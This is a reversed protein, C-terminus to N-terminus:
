GALKSVIVGPPLKLQKEYENLVPRAFDEFTLNPDLSKASAFDRALGAMFGGYDKAMQMRNYRQMLQPDEMAKLSRIDAPDQGLQATMAEMYKRQVGAQDQKAAAEARERRAALTAIGSRGLDGIFQQLSNGSGGGPSAMLNLGLVLLDEDSIGWGKKGETGAEATKDNAMAAPSMGPTKGDTGPKESFWDPPVPTIGAPEEAGAGLLREYARPAPLNSAGAAGAASMGTLAEYLSARPNAAAAAGSREAMSGKALDAEAQAAIAARKDAELKELGRQRLLAAERVKVPDPMVAEGQRNVTIQPKSGEPEYGLRPAEVKAAADEAARAAEIAKPNRGMSGYGVQYDGKFAKNVARGAGGAVKPAGLLLMNQMNEVDQVPLDIGLKSKAEKSIWEASKTLNSGIFDMAQQTPASKYYPSDTIGFMRGFPSSFDAAANGVADAAQQPSMGTARAIPYAGTAGAGVALNVGTDAINVASQGAEKVGETIKKGVGTLQKRLESEPASAPVNLPIGEPSYMVEDDGTRPVSMLQEGPSLSDKAAVQSPRPAAAPAQAMQNARALGPAVAAWKAAEAASAKANAQEAKKRRQINVEREEEPKWNKMAMVHVKDNSLPRHLGHHRLLTDPISLDMDAANDHFVQKDPYKAPNAPTSITGHKKSYVTPKKPGGGLAVWEDYIDQQEERTRVLSTIPPDTKYRERYDAEFANLRKAFEPNMGERRPVGGEAYGVIGGDAMQELNQAPLTGIGQQEPLQNSVQSPMQQPAAAQQMQAVNQDAVTQQPAQQQQSASRTQQRRKFESAALPLIYPDDKHMSAYQQLQADSMGALRDTIQQVNFM